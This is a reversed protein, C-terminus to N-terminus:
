PINPIVIRVRSHQQRPLKRKTLVMLDLMEFINSKYKIKAIEPHGNFHNSANGNFGDRYEFLHV